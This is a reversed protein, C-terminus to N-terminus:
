ADRGPLVASEVRTRHGDLHVIWAHGKPPTQTIKWIEALSVLRAPEDRIRMANTECLAHVSSADLLFPTTWDQVLVVHPGELTGSALISLMEPITTPLAPM